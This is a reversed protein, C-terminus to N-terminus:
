FSFNYNHCISTALQAQAARTTLAIAIKKPIELEQYNANNQLNAPCHIESFILPDQFLMNHPSLENNTSHINNIYYQYFNDVPALINFILTSEKSNVLKITNLLSNFLQFAPAMEICIAAYDILINSPSEFNLSVVNYQNKLYVQLRKDLQAISGSNELIISCVHNVREKDNM